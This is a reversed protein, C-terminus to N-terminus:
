AVRAEAIRTRVDREDQEDLVGELGLLTDIEGGGLDRLCGDLAEQVLQPFDACVM